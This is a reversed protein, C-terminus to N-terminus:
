YLKVLGEATNVVTNKYQMGCVAIVLWSQETKM